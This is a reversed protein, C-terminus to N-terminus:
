AGAKLKSYDDFFRQIVPHPTMGGKICSLGQGIIYRRM